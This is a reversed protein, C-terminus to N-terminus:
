KRGWIAEARLAMQKLVTPMQRRVATRARRMFFRGKIGRQGIARALLFLNEDGFGHRSAWGRLAAEPPQKKGPRRGFEVVNAKFGKSAGIVHVRGELPRVESVIDRQLSGVDRPAGLKAAAEGVATLTRIGESVIVEARGLTDLKQVIEAIGKVQLRLMQKSAM